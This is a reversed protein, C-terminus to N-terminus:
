KKRLIFCIQALTSNNQSTQDIPLLRLNTAVSRVVKLRLIQRTIRFRLMGLKKHSHKEIDYNDVIKKLYELEKNVMDLKVSNTIRNQKIQLITYKDFLEGISVPVYCVDLNM